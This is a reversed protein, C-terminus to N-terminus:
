IDNLVAGAGAAILGADSIVSILNFGLEAFGRAQDAGSAYIGSIKGHKRACAVVEPLADIVEPDSAGGM